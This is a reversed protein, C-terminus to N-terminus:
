LSKSLEYGFNSENGSADVAAVTFYWTGSSLGEVVGSSQNAGAVFVSASYVGSANGYYIRYGQLAGLAGGNASTAPSQWTLVASM